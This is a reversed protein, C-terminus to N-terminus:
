YESDSDHDNNSATSSSSSSDNTLRVNKCNQKLTSRTHNVCVKILKSKKREREENDDDLSNLMSLFNPIMEVKNSPISRTLDITHNNSNGNVGQTYYYPHQSAPQPQHISAFPPHQSSQQLYSSTDFSRFNNIIREQVKKVNQGAVGVFDHHM